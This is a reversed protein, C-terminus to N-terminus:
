CVQNKIEMNKTQVQSEVTHDMSVILDMKRKEQQQILNQNKINLNNQKLTM